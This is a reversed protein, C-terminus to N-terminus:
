KGNLAWDYEKFELTTGETIQTTSYKNLYAKLNGFDKGYWDFISSVKAETYKIFNYKPNNIFSKTLSELKTNLNGATFARNHIPPCSQAACNVAFHIRADKYVPRLIDHEIQNLSYTKGALEIWKVDWAKGGHLDMISKVPWNKLILKVTFANYANIWYAMAEKREWSADPTATALENLYADLTTQAAKLGSYNVSGDATVYTALLQNWNAHDPRQVTTTAPEHNTPQHEVPEQIKVPVATSRTSPVNADTRMGDKAVSTNKENSAQPRAPTVAIKPGSTPPNIQVEAPALDIVEPAPKKSVEVLAMNETATTTNAVMPETAQAEAAPSTDGCSLSAFLLLATMVYNM